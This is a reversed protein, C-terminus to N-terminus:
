YNKVDNKITCLSSKDKLYEKQFIVALTFIPFYLMVYRPNTFPSVLLILFTLLLFRGIKNLLFFTKINKIVLKLNLILYILYPISFVAFYNVGRFLVLPFTLTEYFSQIIKFPIFILSGLFFTVANVDRIMMLSRSPLLDGIGVIRNFLISSFLAITLLVLLLRISYSINKCHMFIVIPILFGFQVRVFVTSLLTFALMLIIYKNLYLYLLLYLCLIHLIDKGATQSFYILPLNLAISFLYKGNLNLNKCLLLHTFFIVTIALLNSLLALSSFSMSSFTLKDLVYYLMSIGTINDFLNLNRCYNLGGAGFCYNIKEFTEKYIYHDHLNAISSYTNQNDYLNIIPTVMHIHYSIAALIFFIFLAYYFLIYKRWELFKM